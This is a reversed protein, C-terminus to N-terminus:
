PDREWALARTGETRAPPRPNLHLGSSGGEPLSDAHRIELESDGRGRDRVTALEELRRENTPDLGCLTLDHAFVRRLDAAPNHRGPHRTRDGFHHHADGFIGPGTSRRRDLAM